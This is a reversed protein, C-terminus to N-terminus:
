NAPFKLNDNLRGLLTFLHEQDAASLGEVALGAIRRAAAMVDAQIARAQPTLQILSRRKDKPDDIRAVLGDREMRALTNAMTPQEVGIRRCLDAQTLGDKEYLMVLAPFQGPAVGLAALSDQLRRDYTRTVLGLLYGLSDLRRIAM